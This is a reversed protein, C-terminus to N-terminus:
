DGGKDTDESEESEMTNNNAAFDREERSLWVVCDEEDDDKPPAARKMMSARKPPTSRWINGSPVTEDDHGPEKNNGNQAQNVQKTYQNGYGQGGSNKANDRAQLFANRQEKTM